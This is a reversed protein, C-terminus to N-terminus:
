AMTDKIYNLSSILKEMDLGDKSMVPSELTISGTYTNEDLKRGIYPFDINGDGPHLIPYLASFEMLGGSFDSVHVHSLPMEASSDSTQWLFEESLIDACQRHLEGLRTDFIFGIKPFYSYLKRWNEIPSYTTCPINEILLKIGYQSITSILTDILSINHAIHSDSCSGGWLHLVMKKAGVAAGMECNLKFRDLATETDNGENRSFLSGVDKECHIVPFVLGDAKFSRAMEDMQAYYSHLMMLEIGDIIGAETLTPMNENILQWRNSNVHGIMTGTSCYVKRKQALSM